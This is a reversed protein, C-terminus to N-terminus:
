EEEKDRILGAAILEVLANFADAIGLDPYASSMAHIDYPDANHLWLTAEERDMDGISDISIPNEM